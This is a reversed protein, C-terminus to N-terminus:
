LHPLSYILVFSTMDQNANEIVYITNTNNQIFRILQEHHLIASQSAVCSARMVSTDAPTWTSASVMPDVRCALEGRREEGGEKDWIRQLSTMWHPSWTFALWGIHQESTPRSQEAETRNSSSFTGSNCNLHCLPRVSARWTHQKNVTHSSCYCCQGQQGKLQRLDLSHLSAKCLIILVRRTGLATHVWRGTNTLDAASIDTYWKMM